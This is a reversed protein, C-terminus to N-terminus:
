MPLEFCFAAGSGGDDSGEVWIRGGHAEVAMKCFTLGLGSSGSRASCQAASLQQFKEFIKERYAEPIGSGTDQIRVELSGQHRNPISHVSIGGGPPTNRVANDLLNALVRGLVSRDGCIAGPESSASCDLVVNKAEAQVQFMARIKGILVEWDFFEKKLQMTGQDFKYIDLTSDLMQQLEWCSHLSIDVLAQQQQTLGQSDQTLLEMAGFIGTLPNRLDHIVMHYLNEKLNELEQLKINTEQIQRSKVMLEDYYRKIRLLSKARVLLETADIPKSLFDDAGVEMARIRDEKEQLATVMLVPIMQTRPDNKLHRCVEFGNMGPMMVDLLILDPPRQEVAHMGAAGNAAGVVDFGDRSLIAKFLKLNKEEDDVVLALAPMM